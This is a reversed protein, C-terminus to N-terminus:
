HPKESRGPVEPLFLVTEFKDDPNSGIEIIPKETTLPSCSHLQFKRRPVCIKIKASEAIM